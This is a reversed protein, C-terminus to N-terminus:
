RKSLKIPKQMKEIRDCYKKTLEKVTRVRKKYLHRIYTPFHKERVGRKPLSCTAAIKEDCIPYECVHQGRSIASM